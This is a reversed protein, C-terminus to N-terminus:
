EAAAAPQPAKERMTVFEEAATPHIGITADFDAKTAGCSLAVALGQIIEAADEGVMHCGLVRGSAGDVVLKMFTRTERGTLTHKLPRFHSRYVDVQVHAMRAQAETRGVPAVPPQSFVATPILRHEIRRPNRNFVTEVFAAAEAIAVPTLMHRDTVDGVAFINPVSSRSYDDVVVAGNASLAVGIEECGLGATNPTRGTAFMVADADLTQGERIEVALAAGARRLRAVHEGTHFEIGAARMEAGLTARVDEDFGRLVEDGRIVLAVESGLGHFIGAFEVAIYGGGVIVVREPLAPLHFAENSTIALEIGPVDPVAPRSGTAILVTKARLRERGVEVTNPDRLAARGEILTVGSERLLGIYVGNLRAIETDKNAILAPWDFGPRAADWGFGRADMFEEAFRSAYVLLKKPICGRLVCTGGVGNEEVVAVKAGVRAAMRAARVGGSGAGIVILDYDFDAM